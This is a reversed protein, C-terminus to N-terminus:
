LIVLPHQALSNYYKQQTSFTHLFTMKVRCLKRNGLIIMSGYLLECLDVGIGGTWTQVDAEPYNIKHINTASLPEDKQRQEAAAGGLEKSSIAGSVQWTITCKRFHSTM